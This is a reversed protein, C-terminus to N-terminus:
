GTAPEGQRGTMMGEHRPARRPLYEGAHDADDDRDKVLLLIQGLQALAHRAREIRDAIRPLQDEDIVAATIIGPLHQALHMLLIRADLEDIERPIESMLRGDGSSNM